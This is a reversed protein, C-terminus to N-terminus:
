SLATYSYTLTAVDAINDNTYYIVVSQYGHIDEIQASFVLHGDDGSTGTFEFEDTLQINSNIRDLALNLTGKRLQEYATSQYLYNITM